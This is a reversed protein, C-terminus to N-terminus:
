MITQNMLNIEFDKVYNFSVETEKIPIGSGKWNKNDIMMWHAIYKGVYEYGKKNLHYTVKCHYKKPEGHYMGREFASKILKEEPFTKFTKLFIREDHINNFGLVWKWNWDNFTQLIEKIVDCNSKELVEIPNENMMIWEKMIPLEKNNYSLTGYFKNFPLTLRVFYSAIFVCYVDWDRFTERPNRKLFEKWVTENGWSPKSFNIYRDFGLIESIHSGISYELCMDNDKQLGHTFSDGFTILLRKKM